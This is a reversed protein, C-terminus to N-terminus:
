RAIRVIDLDRIVYVADPDARPGQYRFPGTDICEPGSGDAATQILCGRFRGDAVFPQAWFLQQGSADWGAVVGDFPLPEPKGGNRSVRFFGHFMRTSAEFYVYLSDVRISEIFSFYSVPPFLDKVPSGGSRVNRLTGGSTGTV